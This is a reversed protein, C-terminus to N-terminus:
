FDGAGYGSYTKTSEIDHKLKIVPPKTQMTKETFVGNGDVDKISERYKGFDYEIKFPKERVLSGVLLQRAIGNKPFITIVKEKIAISNIGSKFQDKAKYFEVVRGDIEAYANNRGHYKFAIWEIEKSMGTSALGDKGKKVYKIFVQFNDVVGSAGNIKYSVPVEWGKENIQPGSVNVEGPKVLYAHMKTRTRKFFIKEPQKGKDLISEILTRYRSSLDSGRKVNTVVSFDDPVGLSAVDYHDVVAVTLDTGDIRRFVSIAPFDQRIGGEERYVCIYDAVYDQPSNIDVTEFILRIKKAEWIENKTPDKEPYDPNDKLVSYEWDIVFREIITGMGKERALKVYKPEFSLTKELDVLPSSIYTGDRLRKDKEIAESSLGLAVLFEGYRKVRIYRRLHWSLISRQRGLRKLVSPFYDLFRAYEQNLRENGLRDIVNVMEQLKEIKKEVTVSSYDIPFVVDGSEDSEFKLNGDSDKLVKDLRLGHAAGTKAEQETMNHEKKLIERM